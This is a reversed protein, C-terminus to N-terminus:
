LDRKNMNYSDSVTIDDAVDDVGTRPVRTGHEGDLKYEASEPKALKKTMNGAISINLTKIPSHNAVISENSSNHNVRGLRTPTISISSSFSDDEDSLWNIFEQLYPCLVFLM